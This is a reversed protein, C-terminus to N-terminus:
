PLLGFRIYDQFVELRDIKDLTDYEDEGELRTQAKRWPTSVQM